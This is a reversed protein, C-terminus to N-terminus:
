TVRGYLELSLYLFESKLRKNEKRARVKQEQKIKCIDIAQQRLCQQGAVKISGHLHTEMVVSHRLGDNERHCSPRFQIDPCLFFIKSSVFTIYIPHTGFSLANIEVESVKM